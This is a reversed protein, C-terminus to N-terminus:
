LRDGLLLLPTVNELDAYVTSASLWAESLKM